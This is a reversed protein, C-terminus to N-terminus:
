RTRSMKLNISKAFNSIIYPFVFSMYWTFQRLIQRIKQCDTRSRSFAYSPIRSFNFHYLQLCTLAPASKSSIGCVWSRSLMWAISNSSYQFSVTFNLIKLALFILTSASKTSIRFGWSRSLFWINCNTLDKSSVTFNNSEVEHYKLEHIKSSMSIVNAFGLLALSNMRYLEHSRWM